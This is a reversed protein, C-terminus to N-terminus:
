EKNFQKDIREKCIKFIEEDKEVGIFKRKTNICGIGTTGSGMTFDVVLDDENSYSKILWEILEVPKQTNHIPKKAGNFELLTTPHRDGKNDCATRGYETNKKIYVGAGEVRGKRKYPKHGTTKQPNYTCHEGKKLNNNKFIYIYELNNLPKKNCNFFGVAKSKKWTLNYKFMKPNTDILCYGFKTDCFHICIGTKKMIRKIEKWMEELDIPLDWECSTTAGFKLTAYPLDLLFLDVSKDPLTKLVNFCDDNFLKITDM